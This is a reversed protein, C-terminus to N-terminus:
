AARRRVILGILSYAMGAGVLGFKVRACHSAIAPWIEEEAGHLAALLAANEMADLLGALWQGWALLGGLRAGPSGRARLKDATMVCGLALLSSYAVLFLYDLGLIFAADLCARDDWSGLIRRVEGASGAFELSLIGKPAEATRLRQDLAILGVGSAVTLGLLSWFLVTRGPIREFPHRV